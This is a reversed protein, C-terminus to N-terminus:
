DGSNEDDDRRDNTIIPIRITFTTGVGVQSQVEISGHHLDVSEKTVVLGLGTGSIAGVNAARHFPEFLYPLDAEPIGIGQDSVQLIMESDTADLSLRISNADPSYKIANSVLNSIIQRMLKQDLMIERVAAGSHYDIHHKVDPRSQFEDLISRCLADLNSRVPHFEVRRSQMRALLLVDDMIDKLHDVQEKIKDFRQEVQEETMRQRYASLTEVLALITALPTRFEHSAMSVFRTKLEGLEKEKDLAERLAQEAQKQVSIDTAVVLSGVFQGESDILPSSSVLLPIRTGDSRKAATEYSSAEGRRRLKLQRETEARGAEDVFDTPLRGIIEEPPYGLLESFRENVFTYRQNTDFAALGGRMTEVLSRYRQESARVADEALRRETIDRAVGIYELPAGSVPDHVIQNTIEVPVYRGDKHKMRQNVTFSASSMSLGTKAASKSIPLDDPYVIEAAQRGVLEDPTYGLLARISPTVYTIIGDMSTKVIVDIVNEALLRYRQESARLAEEARKRETVDMAMSSVMHRGDPLTGLPATIFDWIRDEGSKTRVRFEGGHRPETLAYVANILPRISQQREGYAKETWDDMTPIEDYTYGSLETWQKSLHIITGDDAHIMIPFPADMIARRFRSESERLAQEVRKRGTIDRNVAVIGIPVGNEDKVISVSSLVYLLNSDKRHQVVEAQWSGRELLDRRTRQRESEDEYVTQLIESVSRGQVEEATWGYITEAAHNWSQIHYNMDTVIVADSVNQQLAAQYRLLREQAKRRTIDEIVCVLGDGRILGFRVEADFTTGDKHVARVEIPSAPEEASSAHAYAIVSAVDDPHFLRNLPKDLLEGVEVGFLRRFTPNKQQIHLDAGVLLIGDPSNNLIAEVRAKEAQLDATREEVRRELADHSERLVAEAQKLLSIDVAHVLATTMSDGIGRVPQVSTRYWRPAGLVFSRFESISGEGTRIVKRISELQYRAVEPPFLEDMRRGVANEPTLSLAAAAIRNAYLLTGAADFVSIAADSSDVLSRYKEESTRLAAEALRRAENREAFEMAYSIDGAMEDLLRMEDDDFFGPKSAYLSLTGRIEDGVRLPLGVMARYGLRRAAERMGEIASDHEIDNCIVHMGTRLAATNPGQTGLPDNLIGALKELYNEIMGANAVPQLNGTQPNVMWIWAMLYGGQQVAIRCVEGYLLAPQRTRVIAQNVSSLVSMTRNLKRIHEDAQRRASIDRSVGLVRISGDEGALL